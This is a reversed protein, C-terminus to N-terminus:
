PQRNMASPAMRGAEVINEILAKEVQTDKYKRVARREFIAKQLLPTAPLTTDTNAAM